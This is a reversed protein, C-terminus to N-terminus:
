SQPQKEILRSVSYICMAMRMTTHLSRIRLALITIVSLFLQTYKAINQVSFFRMLTIYVHLNNRNYKTVVFHSIWAIYFLELYVFM